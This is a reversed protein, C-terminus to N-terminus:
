KSPASPSAQFSRFERLKEAQGQSLCRTRQRVLIGFSQDIVTRKDAEPSQADTQPPQTQAAPQLKTAGAHASSPEALADGASSAAKSTPASAPETSLHNTPRVATSNPLSTQTTPATAVAPAAIDSSSSTTEAQVQMERHLQEFLFMQLSQIRSLLTRDKQTEM